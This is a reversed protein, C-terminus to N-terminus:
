IKKLRELIEDICTVFTTMPFRSESLKREISGGRPSVIRVGSEQFFNCRTAEAPMDKHLSILYALPTNKWRSDEMTRKLKSLAGGKKGAIVWTSAIVVKVDITFLLNDGDLLFIDPRVAGSDNLDLRANHAILLDKEKEEAVFVKVSGFPKKRTIGFRTGIKKEIQSKVTYFVIYEGLWPFGASTGM